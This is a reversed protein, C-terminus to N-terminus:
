AAALASLPERRPLTIWGEVKASAPDSIPLVHKLEAARAILACIVADLCDDSDVCVKISKDPIELWGRTASTISALIRERRAIASPTNGKYTGPDSSDNRPSIGWQVLAAAPYVEILRGCGSRDPAEGTTQWYATLLRACRMAVVAIKDTSVSLPFIKTEDHVARDTARLRMSLQHRDEGPSDPWLGISRYELLADLFESPWGFPADIGVRTVYEKTMQALLDHDVGHDGPAHVYGQGGPRWDIMCVATRSPKSALDIGYTATTQM